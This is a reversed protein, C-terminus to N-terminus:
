LPSRTRMIIQIQETLHKECHAKIKLALEMRSAPAMNVEFLRGASFKLSSAEGRHKFLTFQVTAERCKVTGTVKVRWKKENQRDKNWGVGISRIEIEM